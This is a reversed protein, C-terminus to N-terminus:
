ELPTLTRLSFAAFSCLSLFLHPPSVAYTARSICHNPHHLARELRAPPELLAKVFKVFKIIPHSSEIQIDSIILFQFITIFYNKFTHITVHFM